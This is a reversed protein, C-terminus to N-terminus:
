SNGTSNRATEDGAKGGIEPSLFGRLLSTWQFESFGLMATGAALTNRLNDIKSKTDTNPVENRGHYSAKVVNGDRELAFSSSAESKFFHATGGNAALPNACPHVKLFAWEVLGGPDSFSTIDKVTVWDYGQGAKSGPGPIDLRFYDGEKALRKEKGSNAGILELSATGWGSLEHWLPPNLLRKFARRFCGHAEEISASTVSFSLDSPKGTVNEPILSDLHKTMVHNQDNFFTASLAFVKAAAYVEDVVM